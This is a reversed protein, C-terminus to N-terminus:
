IITSLSGQSSASSLTGQTVNKPVPTGKQQNETLFCLSAIFVSLINDNGVRRIRQHLGKTERIKMLLHSTSDVRCMTQSSALILNYFVRLAFAIYPVQQTEEIRSECCPIGDKEM